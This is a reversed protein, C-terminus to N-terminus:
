HAIATIVIIIARLTKTRMDAVRGLVKLICLNSPCLHDHLRGNGARDHHGVGGRRMHARPIGPAKERRM